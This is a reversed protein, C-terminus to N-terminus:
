NGFDDAIADIFNSLSKILNSIFLDYRPMVAFLSLLRLIFCFYIKRQTKTTMTFM